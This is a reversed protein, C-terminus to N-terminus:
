EQNPEVTLKGVAVNVRYNGGAYPTTKIRIEYEGEGSTGAVYDFECEIENQFVDEFTEGNVLGSVEFENVVPTEGVKISIDKPKITIEAPNVIIKGLGYTINYNSNILGSVSFQYGNLDVNYGKQYNLEDFVLTGELSDGEILGEYNLEIDNINPVDDGYTLAVDLPTITLLKQEVTLVGKVYEIEYNESSYGSVVIDYEGVNDNKQYVQDSGKIFYNFEPEGMLVAKDEGNVFGEFSCGNNSADDGYVIAKNNAKIILRAKKVNLEGNVVEIEYNVAELGSVVIDYKGANSGVIYGGYSYVAEGSIASVDDNNIFGSVEYGNNIAAEGYTIEANKVTVTLNAKLVTLVGNVMNVNYNSNALGSLEIVYNKADLGKVYECTLSSEGFKSIDDGNVFGVVNDLAFQPSEDGYNIVFDKAKFTIDKKNITLKGKVYSIEYNQATIGSVEIDYEGASGDCEGGNIVYQINQTNLVSLTEGNVFESAVYGNHEVVDGYVIENNKATITLPAKNIKWANKITIPKAENSYNPNDGIYQLRVSINYDGANVAKSGIYEFVRVNPNLLNTGIQVTRETANYEFETQGILYISGVDEFTGPLINWKVISNQLIYNDKDAGTHKFKVEVQYEGVDTARTTGVVSEIEINPEPYDIIINSLDIVKETEDYVFDEWSINDIHLAKKEIKWNLSVDSIPYYNEQDFYSFKAVVSYNGAVTAKTDGVYSVSVGEPLNLVEVKKEEGDYTYASVYNWVVNSMDITAKIVNVTVVVTYEKYTFTLQYDDIPTIGSEPLTSSLTYGNTKNTKLSVAKKKGSKFVAEVLFDSSTLKVEKGYQVTIVNDELLYENNVLSVSLGEVKDNKSSCSVVGFICPLILVFVLLNLFASKKM